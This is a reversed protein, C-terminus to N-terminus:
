SPPSSSRAARRPSGSALGRTPRLRDLVAMPIDPFSFTTTRITFSEGSPSVSTVTGELSAEDPVPRAFVPESESSSVATGPWGLAVALAGLLVASRLNRGTVALAAAGALLLKHPIRTKADTKHRREQDTTFQENPEGRHLARM